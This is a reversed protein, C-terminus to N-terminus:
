RAPPKQSIGRRVGWDDLIVPWNWPPPNELNACIVVAGPKMDEWVQAELQAQLATDRMPRNFYILDYDGYRKWGAADATEIDLGLSRGAAAYEGTREIGHADLGFIDRAILLKSGPGAGIELYAPDEARAAAVPLAEALLAIFAHLPLPMWPLYLRRSAEEEPVRHQWDRDLREAAELTGAIKAAKSGVSPARSM